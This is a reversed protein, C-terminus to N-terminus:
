NSTNRVKVNPRVSGQRVLNIQGRVKLTLIIRDKYIDFSAALMLYKQDVVLDLGVPTNYGGWNKQNFQPIYGIIQLSKFRVGLGFRLRTYTDLGDYSLQADMITHFHDGINIKEYFGLGISSQYSPCIGAEVFFGQDLTDASSQATALTTVSLFFIIIKYM